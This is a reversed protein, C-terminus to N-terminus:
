RLAEEDFMGKKCLFLNCLLVVKSTTTPVVLSPTPHIMNFFCLLTLKVFDSLQKVRQSDVIGYLNKDAWSSYM